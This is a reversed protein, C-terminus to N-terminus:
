IYVYMYKDIQISPEKEQLVCHSVISFAKSIDMFSANTAKTLWIPLRIM